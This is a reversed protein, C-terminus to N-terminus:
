QKKKYYERGCAAQYFEKCRDAGHLTNGWAMFGETTRVEVALECDKLINKVMTIQEETPRKQSYFGWYPRNNNDGTGSWCGIRIGNIKLLFSPNDKTKDSDLEPYDKKLEEAWEEIFSIAVESRLNSVASRLQDLESITEDIAKWNEETSEKSIIRNRLFDNIAMTLKTNFRTHYLGKLYYAFQMMCSKLPWQTNPLKREEDLLWEAFDDHLKVTHHKEELRLLITEDCRSCQELQEKTLEEDPSDCWCEGPRNTACEREEGKYPLRGASVPIPADYYQPMIVIYINKEDYGAKKLKEIYRALQNRQFIAGKLKNEIVIAYNKGKIAIDLREKEATIRPNVLKIETNLFKQIFSDLLVFQENEKYRLINTIVLSTLTEGIGGITDLLSGNYPPRYPSNEIFIQLEKALAIQKKICVIRTAQYKRLLLFTDEVHAITNM